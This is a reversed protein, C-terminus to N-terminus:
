AVPTSPKNADRAEVVITGSIIDHLARRQKHVPMKIFSVIGLLYKTILRVLGRWLPVKLRDKMTRVRFGMLLQGLTTGFRNCVPEYVAFLWMPWVATSGSPTKSLPSQAYLYLVFIILVVDITTALYRRLLSPYNM